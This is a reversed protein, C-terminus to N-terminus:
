YCVKVQAVSLQTDEAAKRIITAQDSATSKMGAGYYSSLCARQAESFRCSKKILPSRIEEESEDPSCVLGECSRSVDTELEM